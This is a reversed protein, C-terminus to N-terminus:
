STTGVLHFQLSPFGLQLGTDVDQVAILKEIQHVTSSAHLCNIRVNEDECLNARARVVSNGSFGEHIQRLSRNGPGDRPRADVLEQPDDRMRSHVMRGDRRFDSQPIQPTNKLRRGQDKQVLGHVMGFHHKGNDLLGVNRPVKDVIGVNCRQTDFM